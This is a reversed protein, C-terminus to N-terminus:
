AFRQRMVERLPEAGQRFGISGDPRARLASACEYFTFGDFGQERSWDILRAVPVECGVPCDGVHNTARRQEFFNNCYPAYTVPLGRAHAAALVDRTYSAAPWLSKGTVGDLLGADIWTRGEALMNMSGGHGPPADFYGDVHAVFKRGRGRVVASTERVFQTWADGRVRRWLDRDFEDTQWIDIGTRRLMEDRVPQEFGYEGWAFDAHHHGPRLDIGDAGADLMANVWTMWLGRTEAFSPSMVALPGRDKGRALALYANAGRDLALPANLPESGSIGFSSPSGPYRNFEFGGEPGVSAAERGGPAELFQSAYDAKRPTLGYTLHTEEGQEGYVRVLDCLRNVFSRASGKVVIAVFPERLDLGDFRFVRSLRQTSTARPGSPTCAYVARREVIERRSVPGTYARFHENDDSVIISIDDPTIASPADDDKVLDIRTWVANHAPGCASPKRTTILRQNDAAMRTAWASTAGIRHIRGHKKALECQPPWSYGQIAMDFPKLIGYLEIGHAHAHTVAATFIDGVNKMTAKAHTAINLPAFDFYADAARGLDIWSVRRTGWSKLERFLNDFTEHTWACAMLDDNFDVTVELPFERRMTKIAPAEMEERTGFVAIRRVVCGRFGMQFSGARATRRPNVSAIMEVGNASVRMADASWEYVVTTFGYRPARVNSQELVVGGCGANHRTYPDDGLYVNLSTRDDGGCFANASAELDFVDIEVRLSAWRDHPLPVIVGDGARCDWAGAVYRPYPTDTYWGRPLEGADFRECLIPTMPSPDADPM